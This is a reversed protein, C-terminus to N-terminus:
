FRVGHERGALLHQEALDDVAVVGRALGDARLRQGGIGVHLAARRRDAVLEGHELLLPQERV